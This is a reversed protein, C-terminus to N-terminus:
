GKNVAAAAMHAEAKTKYALLHPEVSILADFLHKHMDWTESLMSHEHPQLPIFDRLLTLPYESMIDHVAGIAIALQLSFMTQCHNCFCTHTLVSERPIGAPLEDKCAALYNGEGAAEKDIMVIVPVHNKITLIFPSKM